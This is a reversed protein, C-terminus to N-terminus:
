VFMVERGQIKLIERNSVVWKYMFMFFFFVGVVLVVERPGIDGNLYPVM